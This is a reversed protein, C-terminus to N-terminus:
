ALKTLEVPEAGEQDAPREQKARRDACPLLGRWRGVLLGCRCCGCLDFKEFGAVTELGAAVAALFDMGADLDVGLEADALECAEIEVVVAGEFGDIDRKDADGM